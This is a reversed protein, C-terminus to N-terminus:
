CGEQGESREASRSSRPKGALCQRGKLPRKLLDPEHGRADDGRIWPLETM